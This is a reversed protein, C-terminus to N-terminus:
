LNALKDFQEYVRSGINPLTLGARFSIRCENLVFEPRPLPTRLLPVSAPTYYVRFGNLHKPDFGWPQEKLDYFFALLGTKPLSGTHHVASVEDLNIQLLFDIPADGAPVQFDRPLDPAGGLKSDGVGGANGSELSFAISPASFEELLPSIRSLSEPIPPLKM